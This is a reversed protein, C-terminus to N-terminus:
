KGVGGKAGSDDLASRANADFDIKGAIADELTKRDYKIFAHGICLLALQLGNLPAIIADPFATVEIM